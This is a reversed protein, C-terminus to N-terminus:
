QIQWRFVGKKVNELVTDWAISKRPYVGGVIDKDYAILRAIAQPPFGIDSDIFMLHTYDNPHEKCMDMFQAVLTNRGRTILSENGMTNLYLKWNKKQAFAASTKLVSHFYGESLMGGFCPTAVTVGIDTKSPLEKPKTDSM